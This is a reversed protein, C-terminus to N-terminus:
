LKDKETPYEIRQHYIGNLVKLFCKSIKNIDKLTLDCNDLEGSFLKDKVIKNVMEEIKGKTPDSISRVSAEVSDALMIIGAEKSEPKPGPYRFDEEKIEDSNEANNKMTVYFYKVLTTGHHQEIIDRIVQPLNYERALELGDKVHSIIILTSLNPTIKDHPNEKGIQNEKFFYPRRTKGVDHYYSGIRALVPNGGVEEAAVESLNAVMMSHHYTGPAEMLLKKLLPNNPNSLELLKVTTVVDFTSEFFPLLGVAMVGSFLCGIIVFGSKLLVDLINNSLIMGQTFSVIAVIISLFLTSYLIDNRQEIKRLSTAGIISNLAALVIVEPNFNVAGAILICNFLSLVLSVKYNILLTLLIPACALPILFPSIIALTRALILSTINVINILLLKSNDEYINKYYKNLYRYQLSLIAAVFVATSLYIIINIGSNNLLGLSGLIKIQDETAPEGEKIITQNKKIVIPAVEKIAEKKKEETKDKDFFLNAKIQYYGINKLIDKVNRNYNSNSIENDFISRANQLDSPQDEQINKEYAKELGSIVLDSISKINEKPLAILSGIEDNDLKVTELKSVQNIKEADPIASDKLTSIKNFFTRVNDEADKQIDTKLTYQQGYKDAESQQRKATADQDVIERPAKIDVKSIDGERLDYKKTVLSSITCLYVIIFTLTFMIIRKPNKIFKIIFKRERSM